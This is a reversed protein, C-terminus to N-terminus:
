YRDTSKPGNFNKKLTAPNLTAWTNSAYINLIPIEEQHIKGKM